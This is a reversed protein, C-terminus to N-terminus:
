YARDRKNNYINLVLLPFNSNSRNHFNIIDNKFNDDSLSPRSSATLPHNHTHEVLNGVAAFRKAMRTGFYEKLVLGSTYIHSTSDNGENNIRANIFAYEIENVNSNDSIFNFVSRAENYSNPGFDLHFGEIKKLEGDVMIEATLKEMKDLVGNKVNIHDNKVNGDKDVKKHISLVCQIILLM